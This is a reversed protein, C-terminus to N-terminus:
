TLIHVHIVVGREPRFSYKKRATIEFQPISYSAGAAGYIIDDLWRM